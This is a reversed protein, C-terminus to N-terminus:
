LMKRGVTAPRSNVEEAGQFPSFFAPGAGSRAAAFRM